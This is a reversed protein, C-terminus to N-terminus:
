QREAPFIVMAMLAGEHTDLSPNMRTPRDFPGLWDPDDSRLVFEVSPLGREAILAPNSVAREVTMEEAALAPQTALVQASNLLTLNNSLGLALSAGVVAWMLLRRFSDMLTPKSSIRQYLAGAFARRPKKYYNKLFDDGNNM